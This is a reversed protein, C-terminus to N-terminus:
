SLFVWLQSNYYFIFLRPRSFISWQSSHQYKRVYVTWCEQFLLWITRPCESCERPQNGFGLSHSWPKRDWKRKYSWSQGVGGCPESHFILPLYVQVEGQRHDGHTGERLKIDWPHM